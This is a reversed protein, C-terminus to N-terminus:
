KVLAGRTILRENHHTIGEGDSTGGSPGPLLGLHGGNQPAEGQQTWWRAIFRLARAAVYGLATPEPRRAREALQGFFFGPM